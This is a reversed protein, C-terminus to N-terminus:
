LLPEEKPSETRTEPYLLAVQNEAHERSEFPGINGGERTQFYWLGNIRHIRSAHFHISRPDDTKRQM